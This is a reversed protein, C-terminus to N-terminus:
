DGNNGGTDGGINGGTDGSNGGCGAIATVGIFVFQHM